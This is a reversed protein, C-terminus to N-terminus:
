HMHTHPIYMYVFPFSSVLYLLCVSSSFHPSLSQTLPLSFESRRSITQLFWQSSEHSYSIGSLPSIAITLSFMKM